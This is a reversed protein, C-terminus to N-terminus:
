IKFRSSKYRPPININSEIVIQKICRQRLDTWWRSYSGLNQLIIPSVAALETMGMPRWGGISVPAALRPFPHFSCCHVRAPSCRCPSFSHSFAPLRKYRRLCEDRLQLFWFIETRGPQDNFFLSPSSNINNKM